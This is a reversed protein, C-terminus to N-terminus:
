GQHVGSRRLRNGPFSFAPGERAVLDVDVQVDTAGVERWPGSDLDTRRDNLEALRRVGPTGLERPAEADVGQLEDVRRDPALEAQATRVTAHHYRAGHPGAVRDPLQGSLASRGPRRVCHFLPRGWRLE